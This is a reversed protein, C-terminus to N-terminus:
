SSDMIIEVQKQVIMGFMLKCPPASSL